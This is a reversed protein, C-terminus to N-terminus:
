SGVSIFGVEKQCDKLIRNQETTAHEITDFYKDFQNFIGAININLRPKRYVVNDIIQIDHKSELEIRTYKRNYQIFCEPVSKRWFIFYRKERAPIYTHNLKYKDFVNISRIDKIAIKRM